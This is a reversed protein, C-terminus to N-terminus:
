INVMSFYSMQSSSNYSVSSFNLNCKIARVCVCVSLSIAFSFCVSVKTNGKLAEESQTLTCPESKLVRGVEWWCRLNLEFEPGDSTGAVM